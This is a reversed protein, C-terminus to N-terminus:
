LVKTLEDRVFVPLPRTDGVSTRLRIGDKKETVKGICRCDIQEDALSDIIRHTYEPEAVIILAGSSILGLPDMRFFECLRRTEPYVLIAEEWIEMGSDAAFALEHLGASLGGETPDHMARIGGAQLARRADRLISIGPSILFDRCHDIFDADFERSLERIKERALVATGEIAIGKTLLIDNGPKAGSSTILNRREVTGLMQGVVIPREVGTTVETHGGCIAIGLAACASSLQSFIREVLQDDSKGAPLLVTALFWRPIGGMCCIDNANIHIAYEGIDETAFTIPDTKAILCLSSVDLVAADEGVMPGVIVSRDPHGRYTELLRALTEMRLKGTKLLKMDPFRTTYLVGYGGDGAKKNCRDTRPSRDCRDRHQSVKWRLVAFGMGLANHAYAPETSRHLDGRVCPADM